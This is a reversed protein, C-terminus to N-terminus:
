KTCIFIAKKNASSYKQIHDFNRQLVLVKFDANKAAAEIERITFAGMVHHDHLSVGNVLFEIVLDMHKEGRSYIWRPKFTIHTSADTYSYGQEKKSNIGISKDVADFILMGGDELHHFFNSLTQHLEQADKNYLISNFFCIITGFRERTHFKKMSALFFTVKKNKKKAERLMEKSSDFATVTFGSQQLIDAHTGTGCAADLITNNPSTKFRKMLQVFFRAQKKYAVKHYIQDYYKALTTYFFRTEM